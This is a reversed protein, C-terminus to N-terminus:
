SPTALINIIHTYTVRFPFTFVINHYIHTFLIHDLSSVFIVVSRLTVAAFSLLYYTLPHFIHSLDKIRPFMVSRLTVAAFPTKSVM